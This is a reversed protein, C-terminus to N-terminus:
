ARRLAPGGADDKAREGIPFLRDYIGPLGRAAALAFAHGQVRRGEVPM